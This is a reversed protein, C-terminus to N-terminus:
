PRRALAEDDRATPLLDQKSVRLVGYTGQLEDYGHSISDLTREGALVLNSMPCTHFRKSPEVLVVDVAPNARKIYKAATAGGFGGGVVVVRGAPARGITPASCAALVPLVSAAGLGQLFRRRSPAIDFRTNNNLTNNDNHM